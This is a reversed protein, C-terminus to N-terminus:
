PRWDSQLDVDAIINHALSAYCIHPGLRGKEHM